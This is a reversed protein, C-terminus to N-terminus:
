MIAQEGSALATPTDNYCTRCDRGYAGNAADCGYPDGTHCSVDCVRGETGDASTYECGVACSPPPPIPRVRYPKSWCGESGYCRTRKSVFSSASARPKSFLGRLALFM